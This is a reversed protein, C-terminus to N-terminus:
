ASKVASAVGPPVAMVPVPCRRLLREATTGLVRDRVPRRIREVLVVLDHRPAERLIEAIPEGVELKAVPRTAERCCRPLADIALRQVERLGPLGIPVPPRPPQVVSLVTLGAGLAEALAAAAELGARSYPALSVPALVSRITDRAGRAVLVPVHSRRAVVEAVSGILARSLGHRGHTGMVILDFRDREALDVIRVAPDGQLSHLPTGPDLRAKIWRLTDEHARSELEAEAFGLDGGTVAHFAHVYIAELRAGLPKALARAQRWGAMSEFTGDLPVLIRRPPLHIM